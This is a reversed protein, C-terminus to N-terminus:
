TRAIHISQMSLGKKTVIQGLYSVTADFDPGDKEPQAWVNNVVAELETSKIGQTFHHVKTGNYIGSYGYDTLSGMITHQEKHLTVYKDWGWGKKKGDYHSIQLNRQLFHKQVNFIVVQGDQM